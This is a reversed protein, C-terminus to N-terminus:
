VHGTVERRGLTAEAASQPATLVAARAAVVRAAEIATETADRLGACVVDAHSRARETHALGRDLLITRLGVHRAGLLEDDGGDGIFASQEAELRLGRLAAHYIRPDPKLVGLRYSMVSLDVRERLRFRDLVSESYSSANSVIVVRHGAARAMALAEYAEEDLSVSDYFDSMADDVVRKVTSDERPQGSEVCARAVRAAMDALEGTMTARGLARYRPYWSDRNLGLAQSVREYFPNVPSEHVLTSYLDFLIGPIDLVGM